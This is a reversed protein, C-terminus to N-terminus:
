MSISGNPPGFLVFFIFSLVSVQSMKKQECAGNGNGEGSVFLAGSVPHNSHSRKKLKEREPAVNTEPLTSTLFIIKGQLKAKFGICFM